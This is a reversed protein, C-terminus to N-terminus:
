IKILNIEDDTFGKSRLKYYIQRTLEKGKYKHSLKTSLKYYEKTIIKLTDGFEMNDLVKDILELDYGLKQMDYIIKQKLFYNSKTANNHIKKLVLKELKSLIEEFSIDSLLQEIMDLPIDNYILDAKIKNPGASTLYFKDQIYVRAYIEDNILHSNTLRYLIKEKEELSVHLDTLFQNVEKKSRLKKSIFKVAQYYYDEKSNETIIKKYLEADIEKKFLLNNNLIVNDYLKIKSNDNFEILYEISSVKKIKKIKYMVDGKPM